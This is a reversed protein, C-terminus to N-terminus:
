QTLMSYYTKIDLSKYNTNISLSKALAMIVKFEDDNKFAEVEGPLPAGLNITEKPNNFDPDEVVYKRKAKGKEYLSFDFSHDCDGVSCTFINYERSLELISGQLSKLHWLHYYWDDAIHSWQNDHTIYLKKSRIGLLHNKKYSLLNLKKLLEQDSLKQHCQVFIFFPAHLLGDIIKLENM